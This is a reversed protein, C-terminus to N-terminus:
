GARDSPFNSKGGAELHRRHSTNMRSPQPWLGHCMTELPVVGLCVTDSVAVSKVLDGQFYLVPSQLLLGPREVTRYTSHCRNHALHFGLREYQESQIITYGLASGPVRVQAGRSSDSRYANPGIPSAM